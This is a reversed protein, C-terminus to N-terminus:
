RDERHGEPIFILANEIHDENWVVVDCLLCRENSAVMGISDFNQVIEM